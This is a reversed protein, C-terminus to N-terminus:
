ADEKPEGDEMNWMAQGIGSPFWDTDRSCTELIVLIEARSFQEKESATFLDRLYCLFAAAGTAAYDGVTIRKKKQPM